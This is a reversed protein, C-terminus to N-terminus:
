EGYIRHLIDNCRQAMENDIGWLNDSLVSLTTGYVSTNFMNCTKLSDEISDIVAGMSNRM